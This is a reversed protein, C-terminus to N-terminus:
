TRRGQPMRSQFRQSAEAFDLIAGLVSGDQMDDQKGRKGQSGGELMGSIENFADGIKRRLTQRLGNLRPCDVLVYVVTEPAGRECKDDDRFRRLKAHTALWSHGIRLQFFFRVSDQLVPMRMLYGM